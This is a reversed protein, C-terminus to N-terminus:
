VRGRGTGAGDGDEGGGYSGGHGGGSQQVVVQCAPGFRGQQDETGRQAGRHGDPSGVQMSQGVGEVHQAEVQGAVAAARGIQQAVRLGATGRHLVEGCEDEVEDVVVAVVPEVVRADGQAPGDASVERDVVGSADSGEAQDAGGGVEACRLGPPLTGCEYAELAGCRQERGAGVSPEGIGAGGGGGPATGQQLAEGVGVGGAVRGATVGEGGVVDPGAQRPYLGGGEDDAAGVVQGSRHVVGLFERAAYWPGGQLDDAGSVEGHFLGKGHFHRQGGVDRRGVPTSGRCTAAGGLEVVAEPAGELVSRLAVRRMTIPGTLPGTPPEGGGEVSLLLDVTVFDALRPVAVDALEQASRAMDLTSGIRSSAENLLLLRQRAEYQETIDRAAFGVACLRGSSDKLPALSVSWAHERSEGPVRLVHELHQREGTELVLRMARETNEAEPSDPVIEPMRMGRMQEDTLAVTRQMEANARVSRLDTDYIALICPSQDFGSRVLADSVPSAPRRAATWVVLWDARDAAARRHALLDAEVCHGDRHRLTIRGKWTERGSLPRTATETVDEALLRAAARGVVEERSYGLLRSAGQSWGTVVGREDVTATAPHVADLPDDPRDGPASLGRM